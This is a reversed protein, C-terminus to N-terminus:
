IQYVDTSSERRLTRRGRNNEPLSVKRRGHCFCRTFWKLNMVTKSYLNPAIRFKQIILFLVECICHIGVSYLLDCMCPMKFLFPFFVVSCLKTNNGQLLWKLFEHMPNWWTELRKFVIFGSPRHGRPKLHKRASPFRIFGACENKFYYM